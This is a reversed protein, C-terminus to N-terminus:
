AIRQALCRLYVGNQVPINGEFSAKAKEAQLAHGNLYPQTTLEKGVVISRIVKFGHPELLLSLSQETFFQLHPTDDLDMEFYVSPCHPVEILLYKGPAVSDKVAEAVLVVDRFHELSHSMIVLDFQRDLQVPFSLAALEIGARGYCELWPKGAEIAYLSVEPHHHRIYRSIHSPGAGVDLLSKVSTWDLDLTCFNYMGIARSDHIFYSVDEYREPMVHAGAGYARDYYLNILGHEIKGIEQGHGCTDCVNISSLSGNFILGRYLHERKARSLLPDLTRYM